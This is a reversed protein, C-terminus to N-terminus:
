LKGNKIEEWTTKKVQKCQPFLEKTFCAQIKDILFKISVNKGKLPPVFGYIKIKYDDTGDRYPHSLFIRSASRGEDLINQRSNGMLTHLDNTSLHKRLYVRLGSGQLSTKYRLSFACPVYPMRNKFDPPTEGIERWGSKFTWAPLRFQISFSTSFNPSLEGADHYNHGQGILAAKRIIEEGKQLFEKNLKSDLWKM